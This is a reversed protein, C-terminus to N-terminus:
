GAPPSRCCRCRSAPAAPGWTGSGCRSPWGAGAPRRSPGSRRAEDLAALRADEGTGQAHVLDRDEALQQAAAGFSTSSDSIRIEIVGRMTRPGFSVSSSKMGSRTPVCSTGRTSPARGGSKPGSGSGSGFVPLQKRGLRPRRSRAPGRAAPVGAGVLRLRRPRGELWTVPGRRVTSSGAGAADGVGSGAGPASASSCGGAGAAGAVGSAPWATPLWATSSVGRGPRPSAAQEARGLHRQAAALAGPDRQHQDTSSVYLRDLHRQHEVRREHLDRVHRGPESSVSSPLGTWASRVISGPRARRRKLRAVGTVPDPPTAAIM